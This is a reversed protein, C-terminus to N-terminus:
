ISYLPGAHAPELRIVGDTMWCGRCPPGPQRSLLFVYASQRGDPQTLEALIRARDNDVIQPTIRASVHTLMDAYRRELMDAFATPAGIAARNAPSAYRYAAATDGDRLAALQARVVASPSLSADPGAAGAVPAMAGALAILVAWVVTARVPHGRPYRNPM